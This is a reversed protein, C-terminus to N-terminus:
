TRYISSIQKRARSSHRKIRRAIGALDRLVPTRDILGVEHIDTRSPRQHGLVPKALWTTLEPHDRRLWSYAGDVHMPGGAPDGAPRESMAKLYPIAAEIANRALALFHTTRIGEAPQAFSLLAGDAPGAHNEYGGYFISWGKANLLALTLPLRTEADPAFDLDDELILVNRAGTAHADALIDFHSTFCGRAGISPFAGADEPKCADHFAIRRGDIGLGLRALESAIEARRDKRHRLNIIRVCEFTDLLAQGASTPM